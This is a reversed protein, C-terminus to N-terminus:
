VLKKLSLRIIQEVPMDEAAVSLVARMSESRSYGLALLAEMADQKERTAATMGGAETDTEDGFSYGAIKDQLDLIVRQATKKGVGSVKSFAAADQSAVATIIQEAGLTGLIAVAVQPGIGSVSLLLTFLGVEDRNLFGFLSMGDEKAQLYTFIQVEEGKKPLRSLTAPSVNVLYGIGHNDIVATQGFVGELTGKIYSIMKWRRYNSDLKGLQLM